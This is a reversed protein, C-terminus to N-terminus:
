PPYFHLFLIDLHPIDGGYMMMMLSEFITKDRHSVLLYSLIGLKFVKDKNKFSFPLLTDINLCLTTQYPLVKPMIVYHEFIDEVVKATLVGTDPEFFVEINPPEPPPHSFLPDDHHDFNFSENKPLPFPDDSLLEELFYIDGESDYDDNKIGSPMFDDTNLFLDIEEMQSNFFNEVLCIEEELDFDAEKIRPPIPGNHALEGSFKENDSTVKSESLIPVLNKVSSKIVEDSETKSITSLHEDRMSLSYEPKDTPLIPPIAIISSIQSTIIIRVIFSKKDVIKLLELMTDEMNQKQEECVKTGCIEGILKRFDSNQPPEEKEPAAQEQERLEQERQAARLAEQERQQN